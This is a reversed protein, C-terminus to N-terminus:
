PGLLTYTPKYRTIVAEPYKKQTIAIIQRALESASVGVNGSGAVRISFRQSTPDWLLTILMPSPQDDLDVICQGKPRRPFVQDVISLPLSATLQKALDMCVASEQPESLQVYYFLGPVEGGLSACGALLVAAGAFLRAKWFM